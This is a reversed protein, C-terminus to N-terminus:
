DASQPHADSRERQLLIRKILVLLTIKQDLTLSHFQDLLERMEATFTNDM